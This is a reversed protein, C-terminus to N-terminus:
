QEGKKAVADMWAWLQDDTWPKPRRWEMLFRDPPETGGASAHVTYAIRAIAADIREHVTLPGFEAEFAAWAAVELAPLRGVEGMSM